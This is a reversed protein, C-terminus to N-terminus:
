SKVWHSSVHGHEVNTSESPDYVQSILVSKLTTDQGHTLTCHNRWHPSTAMQIHCTLIRTHGSYTQIEINDLMDELKMWRSRYAGTLCRCIQSNIEWATRLSGGKISIETYVRKSAFNKVKDKTLGLIIHNNMSLLCGTAGYCNGDVKRIEYSEESMM